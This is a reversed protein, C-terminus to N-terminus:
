YLHDKTLLSLVVRVTKITLNKISLLLLNSSGLNQYLLCLMSPHCVIMNIIQILFIELSHIM